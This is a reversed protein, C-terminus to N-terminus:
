LEPQQGSEAQSFVDRLTPISPVFFYEGGKPVVWRAFSFAKAPDSVSLGFMERANVDGSTV